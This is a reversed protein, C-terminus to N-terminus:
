DVIVRPDTSDLCITLQNGEKDFACYPLPKHLMAVLPFGVCVWALLVALPLRAVLGIRSVSEPGALRAGRVRAFIGVILFITGALMAEAIEQRQPCYILEVNSEDPYHVLWWAGICEILCGVMFWAVHYGPLRLLLAVLLVATAVLLSLTYAVLGMGGGFLTGSTEVPRLIEMIFYGAYVVTGLLAIWSVARYLWLWGRGVPRNMVVSRSM